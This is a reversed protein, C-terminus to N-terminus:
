RERLLNKKEKLLILPDIFKVFFTSISINLLKSRGEGFIIFVWLNRVVSDLVNRNKLWEKGQISLYKEINLHSHPKINNKTDGM